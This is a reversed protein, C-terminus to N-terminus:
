GVFVEPNEETEETLLFLQVDVVGKVARVIGEIQGQLEKDAIPGRVTVIGDVCDINLREMNRTIPNEGIETRVRDAITLDDALDEEGSGKIEHIKGATRNALDAAKSKASQGLHSAGHGAKNVKDKLLARSRRGTTPALMIGLIVGALVGVGIWLWKSTNDAIQVETLYDGHKDKGKHRVAWVTDDVEDAKYQAAKTQQKAERHPKKELKTRLKEQAESLNEVKHQAKDRAAAAAAASAAAASAAAEQAAKKSNQATKATNHVTHQVADVASQKANSATAAGAAIGTAAVGKVAGVAGRAADTAAHLADGAKHSAAGLGHSAAEFGHAVTETVSEKVDKLTELPRELPLNELKEHITELTGAVTDTVTGRLSELRSPPKRFM